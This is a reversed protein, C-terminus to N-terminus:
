TPLLPKGDIERYYNATEVDGWKGLPCHTIEIRGNLPNLNTQSKTKLDLFCNCVGCTRTGKKMKECGECISMRQGALVTDVTDIVLGSAAVKLARLAINMGVLIQLGM